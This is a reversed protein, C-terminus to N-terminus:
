RARASGVRELARDVADQLRSDGIRLLIRRAAERQGEAALCLARDLRAEPGLLWGDGRAELADFLRRAEAPRGARYADVAAIFEAPGPDDEGPALGEPLLGPPPPPPRREVPRHNWAARPRTERVDTRELVSLVSPLAPVYPPKVVAGVWGGRAVVLIERPKLGLAPQLERGLVLPWDLRYLGLVQRLALDQELSPPVTLVRLGPRALRKLAEVDGSCSRCSAEAAYLLNLEVEDLRFVPATSLRTNPPLPFPGDRYEVPGTALAALRARDLEAQASPLGAADAAREVLAAAEPPLGEAGAGRGLADLAERGQGLSLLSRALAFARDPKVELEVARRLYRSGALPQGQLALVRGVAEFLRARHRRYEERAALYADEVVEGKGGPRVFATPEFDATLALAKRARALAAAPQAAAEQVAAAALREAEAVPALGAVAAAAVSRPWWSTAGLGAGLMSALSGLAAALRARRAWFGM